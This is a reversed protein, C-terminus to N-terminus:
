TSDDRHMAEAADPALCAFANSLRRRRLPMAPPASDEAPAEAITCESPQAKRSSARAFRAHLSRLLAGAGFSAGGSAEAPALEFGAETMLPTVRRKSRCFCLLRCASPSPPVPAPAAIKKCGADAFLAARERAADRAALTFWDHQLAQPASPRSAPAPSLMRAVLDRAQPSVTVWVESDMRLEPSGALLRLLQIDTPATFPYSQALMVHLCVGASWIDAALGYGTLPARLPTVEPALYYVSGVTTRFRPVPRIARAVVDLRARTVPAPRPELQALLSAAAAEEDMSPFSFDDSFRALAADIPAAPAALRRSLGFDILKITPWGGFRSAASKEVMINELKIARSCPTLQSSESRRARHTRVKLDRHAIRREHMYGLADLIQATLHRAEPEPLPGHKSCHTWLEGGAVYEMAVAYVGPRNFAYVGRFGVVSPHGALDRMIDCELMVDSLQPLADTHSFAPPAMHLVFLRAAVSSARARLAAHEMAARLACRRQRSRRALAAAACRLLQRAKAPEKRWGLLKIAVRERSDNRVHAIFVQPAVM